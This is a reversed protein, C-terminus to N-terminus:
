QGAHDRGGCCPRRDDRDDVAPRREDDRVVGADGPALGAAPKGRSIGHRDGLVVRVQDDVGGAVPEVDRGVTAHEPPGQGDLERLDLRERQLTLPESGCVGAAAGLARGASFGRLLRRTPRLPKRTRRSYRSAIRRRDDLCGGFRSSSLCGMLVAGYADLRGEPCPPPAPGSTAIMATISPIRTATSPKKAKSMHSSARSLFSEDPLEAAAFVAAIDLMGPCVMAPLM